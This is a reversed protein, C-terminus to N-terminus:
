IEVYTKKLLIGHYDDDTLIGTCSIKQGEKLKLYNQTKESIRINFREILKSETKNKGIESILVSSLNGIYYIVPKGNWIYRRKQLSELIGGHIKVESGIHNLIFDKDTKQSIDPNKIDELLSNKPEKPNSKSRNTSESKSQLKKTLHFKANLFLFIIISGIITSVIIILLIIPYTTNEIEFYDSEDYVKADIKSEIRIYFNEGSDYNKVKWEFFGDNETSESIYEIFQSNQYLEISVNSIQGNSSWKIQYIEGTKVISFQTQSELELYEFTIRFPESIDFVSDNNADIIKINYDGTNYKDSIPINWTFRGDNEALSSIDKILEQNQYLSINVNESTDQSTWSIIYYNGTYWHSNKTPTSITISPNLIPTDPDDTEDPPTSFSYEVYLKWDNPNFENDYDSIVAHEEELLAKNVNKLHTQNFQVYVVAITRGYSGTGYKDDVDIFIDREFVLTTLFNKSESSGPDGTEPADIDALRIREDTTLDFTDGDVIYDVHGTKDVEWAHTINILSSLCFCYFTIM